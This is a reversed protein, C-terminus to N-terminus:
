ESIIIKKNVNESDTELQIIYNGTAVNEVKIRFENSIPANTANWAKVRQGVMNFLSVQKVNVGNPVNVFIEKTRTFYSLITKEIVSEEVSLVNDYRKFTIFFREMYTGIDMYMEFDFENIATTTGLLADYVFVEQNEDFNEM